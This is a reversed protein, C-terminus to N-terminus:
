SADWGEEWHAFCISRVQLLVTNTCTCNKSKSYMYIYTNMFMYMFMLVSTSMPMFVSVFMYFTRLCKCEKLYM